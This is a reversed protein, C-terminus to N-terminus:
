PIDLSSEALIERSDSERDIYRVRLVGGRLVRGAPLSLRISVERHSNPVYVAIGGIRGVELSGQGPADWVAVIDGYTSRNGARELHMNLVPGGRGEHADLRLNTLTTAATLSGQRVIVPIMVGYIPVLKISIGKSGPASSVVADEATPILRFDMHSRYEGDKLDAPKRLMMRVMQVQRPELVVRRPTFRVLQDAFLGESGDTVPETIEEIAGTDTMRCQVFFIAYTRAKQSRNVLALEATRMQGDFIIRTPTILLDQFGYSAPPPNEAMAPRPFLGMLLSLSLIFVFAAIQKM